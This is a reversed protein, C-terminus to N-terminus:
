SQSGHAMKQVTSSKGIFGKLGKMDGGLSAGYMGEPENM